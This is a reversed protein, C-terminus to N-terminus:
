GAHWECSMAVILTDDIAPLLTLALVGGGIGGEPPDVVEQCGGGDPRQLTHAWHQCGLQCGTRCCTEGREM